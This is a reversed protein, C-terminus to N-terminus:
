RGPPNAPAGAGTTIRGTLQNTKPDVLVVWEQGDRSMLLALRDNAAAVGIIRAGANEGLALTQYAGSSSGPGGGGARKVIMVALTVTGAVILVGMVVVLIKLARM